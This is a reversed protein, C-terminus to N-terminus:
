SDLSLHIIVGDNDTYDKHYELVYKGKSSGVLMGIYGKQKGNGDGFLVRFGKYSDGNYNLVEKDRWYLSFSTERGSFLCDLIENVFGRVHIGNLADMSDKKKSVHIKKNCNCDVFDVRDVKSIFEDSLRPENGFSSGVLKSLANYDKESILDQSLIFKKKKDLVDCWSKEAEEKKKKEEAQKRAEEKKNEDERKKREAEKQNEMKLELRKEAAKSEGIKRDYIEFISKIIEYPPEKIKLLDSCFEDFGRTYESIKKKDSLSSIDVSCFYDFRDALDPDIDRLCKAVKKICAYYILGGFLIVASGVGVVKGINNSVSLGDGKSKAKRVRALAGPCCLSACLVASLLRGKFSRMYFVELYFFMFRLLLGCCCVAAVFRM